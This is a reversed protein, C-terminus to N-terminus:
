LLSTLERDTLRRIFQCGARWSGDPQGQVRVVCALVTYSIDAQPNSLEVGLVTGPEFRHPLVLGMGENSIDRVSAPWRQEEGYPESRFSTDLSCLYRVSARREAVKSEGAGRRTAVKPKPSAHKRKAAGGRPASKSKSRASKPRQAKAM